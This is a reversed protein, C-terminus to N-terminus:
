SASKLAGSLLTPAPIMCGRERMIRHPPTVRLWAYNDRHGHEERPIPVDAGVHDPSHETVIRGYRSWRHRGPIEARQIGLHGWLEYLDLEVFPRPELGELIPFTPQGALTEACEVTKALGPTATTNDIPL